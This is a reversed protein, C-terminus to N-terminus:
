ITLIGGEFQWESRSKLFTDDKALQLVGKKNGSNDVDPSKFMASLMAAKTMEGDNDIAIGQIIGAVINALDDDVVKANGKAKGKAKGKAADSEWPLKNIKTCLLVTHEKEGEKKKNSGTSEVPSTLWHADLGVLYSIDDADMKNEPFGADILSKLFRGYNTQKTPKTKAKLFELGTGTENAVFDGDGGLAYFQTSEDDGVRLTVKCVAVPTKAKGNYDTMIFRIDSIVGDFDDFFTGGEALAEYRLDVKGM